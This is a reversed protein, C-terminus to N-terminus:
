LSRASSLLYPRDTTVCTRGHATPTPFAFWIRHFPLDLPPPRLLQFPSDYATSTSLCKAQLHDHVRVPQSERARLAAEWRSRQRHPWPRGHLTAGPSLARVRISRSPRRLARAVRG